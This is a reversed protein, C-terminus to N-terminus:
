LTRTSVVTEAEHMIGMRVIRSRDSILEYNYLVRIYQIFAM